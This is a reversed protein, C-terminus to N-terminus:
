KTLQCQSMSIVTSTKSAANTGPPRDRISSGRYVHTDTIKIAQFSDFLFDLFIFITQDQNQRQNQLQQGSPEKLVM